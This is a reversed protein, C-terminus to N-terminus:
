DEVCIAPFFSLKSINQFEKQIKGPHKIMKMVYVVLIVAFIVSSIGMLTSSITANIGWITESRQWDITAGTLGMVVAFFSISFNKLPESM